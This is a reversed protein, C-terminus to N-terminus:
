DERYSCDGLTELTFQGDKYDIITVSCNEIFGGAKRHEEVRQHDIAHLVNMIAGGHSILLVNGEPHMQGVKHLFGIMRETVDSMNEGGVDRFGQQHTRTTFVDKEFDGDYIGFNFEKIEKREELEIDRGNLIMEATDVVREQTSCYAKVFPIDMMNRGVNKAQRIGTETLPSDCAGQVRHKLNFMTQGHRVLYIKM